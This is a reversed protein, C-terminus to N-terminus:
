TGSPAFIAFQGITFRRREPFIRQWTVDSADGVYAVFALRPSDNAEKDIAPFRTPLSSASIIQNNSVFVLRYALWYDTRIHTFNTAELGAALEKVDGNADGFHHPLGHDFGVLTAAALTVAVASIALPRLTDWRISRPLVAAVCVFIPILIFTFYHGDAVAYLSPFAAMIPPGFIGALGIAAHTKLLRLAGLWMAAILVVLVLAAPRGFTWRGSLDRLGFGRAMMQTYMAHERGLLTSGPLQPFSKSPWSNAANYWFFPFVGVFAAPVLWRLLRVRQAMTHRRLDVYLGVLGPLVTAVALPHQWFALGALLGAIAAHWQARVGELTDLRAMSICCWAFGGLCLAGSPYGLFLRTSLFVTWPGCVWLSLALFMGVARAWLMAGLKGLVAGVAVWEAIALCKFVTVNPGFLWYFPAYIFAELTGGYNNGSVVAAFNGHLVGRAMLGTTAEDSDIRGLPTHLLWYRAFVGVAVVALAVTALIWRRRRGVALWGAADDIADLM